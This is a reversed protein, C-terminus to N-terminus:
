FGLGVGIGSNGGSGLWGGLSVGPAGRSWGGPSNEASLRPFLRNTTDTVLAEAAARGGGTSVGVAEAVTLSGDCLVARLRTPDTRMLDPSGQTGCGGGSDVVDGSGFRMVLHPGSVPAVTSPRFSAAAWQTANGALRAVTAEPSPGLVAPAPATVLPIPGQSGLLLRRAAALDPALGADISPPPPGACAALLLCVLPLSRHMVAAGQRSSLPRRSTEIRRVAGM